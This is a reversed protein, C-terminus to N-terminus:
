DQLVLRLQEEDIIGLAIFRTLTKRNLNNEKIYAIKDMPELVRIDKEIPNLGKRDDLLKRGTYKLLSDALAKDDKAIEAISVLKEKITGGLEDYRERMSPERVKPMSPLKGTMIALRERANLGAEKMQDRREEMSYNWTGGSANQYHQAVIAMNSQYKSNELEYSANLEEESIDGRKFKFRASSYDSMNFGALKRQNRMNYILNSDDWEVTRIGILRLTAEDLKKIDGNKVAKEFREITNLTGPRITNWLELIFTRANDRAEPSTFVPKGREDTGSIFRSVMQQPFNGRGVFDEVLMDGLQDLDGLAGSELYKGIDVQPLLYSADAYWGSRGDENVHIYLSSNKNYDRAFSDKFEQVGVDDLGNKENEESLYLTGGAAAAVLWSGRWAGNKRMAMKNAQSPDLGFERGFTGAIMQRSYRSQNYANRLLEARFSIFPPLGGLLEGSKVLRSLHEYNPFTDNVVKAAVQKIQEDTANPYMNRINKQTEKWNVYRLMRDGSSYANSFFDLGKRPIGKLVDLSRGLGEEALESTISGTSLGYKSMDNVDQLWAERLEPNKGSLINDLGGYEALALRFGKGLGRGPLPLVGNSASATVAGLMATPYSEVNLLVKPIKTASTWFKLAKGVLGDEADLSRNRRLTNIAMDMEDSLFIGSRDGTSTFLFEKSTAPTKERSALGSNILYKYLGIDEYRNASQKAVLSLTAQMRKGPEKVEGLYKRTSPGIEDKQKLPNVGGGKNSEYTMLKEDVVNLARQRAEKPDLGAYQSKRLEKSVLEIRAANRLKSDVKFNKDLFMNYTRTSYDGDKISQRIIDQLKVRQEKPLGAIMEDDLLKLLLDQLETRKKNFMILDASIPKLSDDMPNGALFSDVKDKMNPDKKIARSVFGNIRDGLADGAKSTGRAERIIDIGERGLVKSPVLIAKAKGLTRDIFGRQQTFPSNFEIIAKAAEKQALQAAINQRTYEFEMSDEVVNPMLPSDTIEKLKIQNPPDFYVKVKHPAKKFTKGGTHQIGGYGLKKIQDTIPFFASEIIEESTADVNNRLADFAERVTADDSLGRLSNGIDNGLTDNGFGFFDINLDRYKFTDIDIFNVPETEQITYITPKKGSGKKTYGKAVDLADTTYFGEGYINASSMYGEDNLLTTVPRSTGHYQEGQGRTDKPKIPKFDKFELKGTAIEEIVEEYNNINKNRSLSFLKSDSMLQPAAGFGGALVISATNKAWQPADIDQGLVYGGTALAEAALFRSTNEEFEDGLGGLIKQAATKASDSKLANYPARFRQAYKVLSLMPLSEQGGVRATKQFFTPDEPEEGMISLDQFAESVNLNPISEQKEKDAEFKKLKKDFDGTVLSLFSPGAASPQGYVMVPTAFEAVPKSLDVSGQILDAIGRNFEQLLSSSDLYMQRLIGVDEEPIDDELNAISDSPEAVADDEVPIEENNPKFNSSAFGLIDKEDAGEPHQVRIISGDPAKVNTIPM